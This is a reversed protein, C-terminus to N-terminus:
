VCMRTQEPDARRRRKTKTPLVFEMNYRDRGSQVAIVAKIRTAAAGRNAIARCDKTGGVTRDIEGLLTDGPVATVATIFPESRAPAVETWTLPDPMLAEITDLVDDEAKVTESEIESPALVPNRDIV